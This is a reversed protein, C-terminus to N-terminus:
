IIYMCIKLLYVNIHSFLNRGSICQCRVAPELIGNDGDVIAFNDINGAMCSKGIWTNAYQKRREGINVTVTELARHGPECFGPSTLCEIVEPGPSLHHVPKQFEQGWLIDANNGSLDLHFHQFSSVRCLGLEVIQMVSGPPLVVVVDFLKRKPMDVGGMDGADAISVKRDEVHAAAKITAWQLPALDAETAGNVFELFKVAGNLLLEAGQWRVVNEADSGMGQTRNRGFSYSCAQCKGFFTGKMDMSCFLCALDPVREVVKASARHLPNEIVIRNIFAPAEDM